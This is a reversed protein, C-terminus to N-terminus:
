RIEFVSEEDVFFPIDKETLGFKEYMRSLVQYTVIDPTFEGKRVVETVSLDEHAYMKAQNGLDFFPSLPHHPALFIGQLKHYHLAVCWESDSIAFTEILRRFMRFFSVPYEVVPFPWLLPRAKLEEASEARFFTESLSAEFTMFGSALLSLSAFKPNGMSIRSSSQQFPQRDVLRMNWGSNRDTAAPVRLFDTVSQSQLNLQKANVHRPGACLFFSREPHRQMFESLLSNAVDKGDSLENLTTDSYFDVINQQSPQDRRLLHEITSLKRETLDNNFSNRIEVFTMERKGDQYRKLFHTGNQFKVMHPIRSSTPVRIVIIKAGDVECPKVELGSIREEIHQVCLDLIKQTMRPQDDGLSQFREAKSQDNGKLGIVIYGGGSNAMSAIDKLVELSEKEVKKSDSVFLLPYTTKFELYENERQGILSRLDDETLKEVTKHEFLM